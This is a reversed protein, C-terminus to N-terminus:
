HKISIVTQKAEQYLSAVHGKAVVVAHQVAPRQGVPSRMFAAGAFVGAIMGCLFIPWRMSSRAPLPERKVDVTTANKKAAEAVITRASPLPVPTPVMVIGSEPIRPQASQPLPPPRRRGSLPMPLLVELPPLVPEADLRADERVRALASDVINNTDDTLVLAASM